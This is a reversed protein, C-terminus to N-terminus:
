GSNRFVYESKTMREETPLPSIPVHISGNSEFFAQKTSNPSAFTNSAGPYSIDVSEENSSSTISIKTKNNTARPDYVEPRMPLPCAQAHLTFSADGVPFGNGIPSMVEVTSDATNIQERSVEKPTAAEQRILLKNHLLAASTLASDGM